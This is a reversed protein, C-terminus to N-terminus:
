SNSREFEYDRVEYKTYRGEYKKERFVCYSIRVVFKGAPRKLEQSRGKTQWHELAFGVFRSSVIFPGHGEAFSAARIGESVSSRSAQRRTKWHKLQCEYVGSWCKDGNKSECSLM